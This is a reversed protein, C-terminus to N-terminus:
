PNIAIHSHDPVPYRRDCNTIHVTIHYTYIQTWAKVRLRVNLRKKQNIVQVTQIIQFQHIVSATGARCLWVGRM